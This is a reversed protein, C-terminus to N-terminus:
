LSRVDHFKDRVDRIFTEHVSYRMICPRLFLSLSLLLPRSLLCAKQTLANRQTATNQGRTNCSVHLKVHWPAKRTSRVDHINDRVDRIFADHVSYRMICPRANM